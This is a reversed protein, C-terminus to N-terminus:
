ELNAHSKHHLRPGRVETNQYLFPVVDSSPVPTRPRSRSPAPSQGRSEAVSSAKRSSADRHRSYSNSRHEKGIPQGEHIPEAVDRGPFDEGFFGQLKKTGKSIQNRVISGRSGNSSVTALSALSPRREDHLYGNFASDGGSGSRDRTRSLPRLQSSISYAESADDHYNAVASPMTSANQNMWPGINNQPSPVTPPNHQISPIHGVSTELVKLDRRHNLLDSSLRHHERPTANSGLSTSQSEGPHPPDNM